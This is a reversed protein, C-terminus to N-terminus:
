LSQFIYTQLGRFGCKEIVFLSGALPQQLIEEETLGVKASTIYLDDLDEGGFSCSTVRSVPLYIEHLMMGTNPNWRSVKWGDWHAIWLMGEEDITMGDPSGNNEQIVILERRNSIEGSEDNYDFEYVTKTPTDILYFSKKDKSWALGNSITLGCFKKSVSLDKELTYLSGAEKIGNGDDMTGAWFRGSPDCKGDNFRNGLIHFEPNTILKLQNNDFDILYFGTKLAAILHGSSCKSIAGIKQGVNISAYKGSLTNYKHIDGTVIDIWFISKTESDWVPGEACLSQINTVTSFDNINSELIM